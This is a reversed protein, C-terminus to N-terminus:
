PPLHKFHPHRQFEDLRFRLREPVRNTMPVATINAFALDWAQPPMALSPPAHFCYLLGAPNGKAAPQHGHLGHCDPRLQTCFAAHM